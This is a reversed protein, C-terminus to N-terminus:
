GFDMIIIKPNKMKLVMSMWYVLGVWKKSKKLTAKISNEPNVWGIYVGIGFGLLSLRLVIPNPPFWFPLIIPVLFIPLEDIEILLIQNNSPSFCLRCVM